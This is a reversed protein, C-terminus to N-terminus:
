KKPGREPTQMMQAFWVLGCIFGLAIDIKYREGAAIVALCGLKELEAPNGAVTLGIPLLTLVGALCVWKLPANYPILLSIMHGVIFLACVCCVLSVFGCVVLAAPDATTFGQAWLQGWWTGPYMEALIVSGLSVVFGGYFMKMLVGGCVEGERGCLALFPDRKQSDRRRM